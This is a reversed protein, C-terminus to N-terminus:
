GKIIIDKLEHVDRALALLFHGSCSPHLGIIGTAGSWLVFPRTLPKGCLFCNPLTFSQISSDLEPNQGVQRVVSMINKRQKELIKL